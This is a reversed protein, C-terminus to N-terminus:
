SLGFNQTWYIRYSGGRAVGVGLSKYGCNLINARHGPSDMWSKMVAEPDAQGAAINEGAGSPYGQARARDSPSRGDQSNHSFYNNKAMDASHGRAAKALREDPKLAACGNKRREADVLGAVEAEFAADGSPPNSASSPKPKSTTPKVRTTSSPATSTTSEASVTGSVETSVPVTSSTPTSSSSSPAPGASRAPGAEVPGPDLIGAKLEATAGAPKVEPSTVWVAVSLGVVAAALVALINRNRRWQGSREPSSM